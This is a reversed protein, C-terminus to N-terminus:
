RDHHGIANHMAQDSFGAPARGDRVYLYLAAQFVTALVSQALALLIGAAVAVVILAVGLPGGIMVAVVFLAVLPLSLLFFIIGFSFNGIIQEGWTQRLLTTSRKLADVPGIGEIVLVPVVLFSVLTWALGLLSAVLAGVWRSRDEIMRLIVGVTAAIFAWGLIAHIQGFAARLGDAVTPNDGSVRIRVCAIIAANFFIIVFYNCLYFAFLSLYYSVHSLISADATPPRFNNTAFLPIAFCAMVFLCSIGSFLPFLLLEKDQKLVDWSDGMLSWTTSIKTFM